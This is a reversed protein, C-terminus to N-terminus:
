RLFKEITRVFDPVSIPKSIYDQCGGKRIIEEDGDAVHATVAIVPISRLDADDRIWKTVRLGSVEPLQMDMLILDPRNARALELAERGDTAQLIIHGRVALLDHLLKMNLADDEVILIKKAATQIAAGAGPDPPEPAPPSATGREAPAMHRADDPYPAFGEASAAGKRAFLSLSPSRYQGAGGDKGTGGGTSRGIPPPPPAGAGPKTKDPGSM